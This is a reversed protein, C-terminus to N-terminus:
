WISFLQTKQWQCQMKRAKKSLTFIIIFAFDISIEINNNSAWSTILRDMVTPLTAIKWIHCAFSNINQVQELYYMNWITRKSSMKLSTMRPLSFVTSFNGGLPKQCSSPDTGLIPVHGEMPRNTPQDTLKRLIADNAKESITSWSLQGHYRTVSLALNKKFFNAAWIQAFRAWHKKNNEWTQNM